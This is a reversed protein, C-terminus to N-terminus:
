SPPPSRPKPASENAWYSDASPRNPCRLGGILLEEYLSRAADYARSSPDLTRRRSANPRRPTSGSLGFWRARLDVIRLPEGLRCFGEGGQALGRGAAGAPAAESHTM